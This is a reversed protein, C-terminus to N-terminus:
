TDLDSQQPDNTRNGRRLETCNSMAVLVACRACFEDHTKTAKQRNCPGCALVLNDPASTGGAAKPVKHEIEPARVSPHGWGLACGCYHCEWGDRDTLVAIRSLPGHWDQGQGFLGVAACEEALIQFVRGGEGDGLPWILEAKSAITKASRRIATLTKGLQDYYDDWSGTM